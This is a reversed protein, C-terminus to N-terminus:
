PPPTAPPRPRTFLRVVGLVAAVALFVLCIAAYFLGGIPYDEHGGFLTCLGGTLLTMLAFGTAVGLGTWRWRTRAMRWALVAVAVLFALGAFLSGESALASALVYDVVLFLLLGLTFQAFQDVFPRQAPPAPNTPASL